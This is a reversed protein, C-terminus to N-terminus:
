EILKDLGSFLATIIARQLHNMQYLKGMILVPSEKISAVSVLEGKQQNYESIDFFTDFRVKHLDMLKIDFESAAVPLPIRSGEIKARVLTNKKAEGVDNYILNLEKTGLNSKLIFWLEEFFSTRDNPWLTALNDLVNFLEEILSINNQLIWLEQVQLFISFADEYSLNEFKELTLSFANGTRVPFFRHETKLLGISEESLEEKGYFAAQINKQKLENVVCTESSHNKGFEFFRLIFHTDSKLYALSFQM